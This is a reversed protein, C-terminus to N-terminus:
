EAISWGESDIIVGQIAARADAYDASWRNETMANDVILKGFNGMPGWFVDSVSVGQGVTLGRTTMDGLAALFKNTQYEESAIIEPSTVGYGTEEFFIRQGEPSVFYQALAYAAKAKAPNTAANMNVCMGKVGNFSKMQRMEGNVEISPVATVKIDDKSGGAREKQAEYAEVNNWQLVAATKGAFNIVTDNLGAVLGGGVTVDEQVTSSSSDDGGSLVPVIGYDHYLQSVHDVTEVVKDDLFNCTMTSGDTSPTFVGGGAWFFGPNYWADDLAVHFYYGQEKCKKAIKDFSKVDDETLKTADYILLWSNDARHPFAYATDNISVLDLVDEGCNDEVYSVHEAALPALANANAAKRINDDAIAMVDACATYDTVLSDGVTNEAMNATITATVGPNAEMFGDLVAQYADNDVEPCWVSIEGTLPATSASSGAGGSSTTEGGACGALALIGAVALISLAGHKKNIM